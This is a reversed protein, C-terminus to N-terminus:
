DSLSRNIASNFLRHRGTELWDSEAWRRGIGCPLETSTAIGSIHPEKIMKALLGLNAYSDM